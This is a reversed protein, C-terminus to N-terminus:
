YILILLWFIVTLNINIFYGNDNKDYDLVRCTQGYDFSGYFRLCKNCIKETTKCTSICINQENDLIFGNACSICKRENYDM